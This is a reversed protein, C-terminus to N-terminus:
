RSPSGCRTAAAKKAPRAFRRPLSFAHHYRAPDAPDLPVPRPGDILRMAIRVPRRQEEAMRLNEGARLIRRLDLREPVTVAHDRQIEPAVALAGHAGSGVRHFVERQVGHGHQVRFADPARVIEARREAAHDAERERQLM